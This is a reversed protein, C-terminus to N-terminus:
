DNIVYYICGDSYLRRTGVRKESESGEACFSVNMMRRHTIAARTWDVCRPSLFANFALALTVFSTAGELIRDLRNVHAHCVCSGVRGYISDKKGSMEIRGCVCLIRLLVCRTRQDSPCPAYDARVVASRFSDRRRSVLFTELKRSAKRSNRPIITKRRSRTDRSSERARSFRNGGVVSRTRKDM